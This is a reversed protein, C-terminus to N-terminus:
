RGASQGETTPIEGAELIQKFRRMDEHIQQVTISKQMRAFIEGVMGAPPQYAMMVTVQTGRNGTAPAFHVSGSTQVSSRPLSRWAIMENSRDETIEADWELTLGPTLHVVWHSRGNGDTSVSRVHEMFQPLNELNRWFSYVESQDRNVIVSKRLEIPLDEGTATNKELLEYIPSHGTVGRYLLEAGLAGAAFSLPSRNRLMYAVLLSGGVVSVLRETDDVNAGSAARRRQLPRHQLPRQQRPRREFSQTRIPRDQIQEM